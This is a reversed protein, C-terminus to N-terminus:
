ISQPRKSVQEELEKIKNLLERERNTFKLQFEQDLIEIETRSQSRKWDLEKIKNKLTINDEYLM